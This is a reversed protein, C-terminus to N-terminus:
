NRSAVRFQPLKARTISYSTKMDAMSKASEIEHIWALAEIPRCASSSVESRFFFFCEGSGSIVSNPIPTSSLYKPENKRTIQTERWTIKRWRLTLVEHPHRSIELVHLIKSSAACFLDREVESGLPTMLM